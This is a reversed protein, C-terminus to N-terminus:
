NEYDPITEFQECWYDYITARDEAYEIESDLVSQKVSSLMELNHGEELIEMQEDMLLNLENYFEHMDEDRLKVSTKGEDTFVLENNEDHEAYETILQTREQELTKQNDELLRILRTRMRSSRGKLKLEFLLEILTNIERKRIKM